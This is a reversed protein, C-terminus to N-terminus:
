QTLGYKKYIKDYTGDKKLSLFADQFKKITADPTERNFAYFDSAGSITYLKEYEKNDIGHEKLYYWVNEEGYAIIDVSGTNLKKLATELTAVRTLKKKPVNRSLLLIESADDIVTVIRYKKADDVTALKIKKRKKAILGLRPTRIPGVWKFLKEREELRSTSFIVSNPRTLVQQYGQAWPVLKIKAPELGMRAWMEKLIDVSSGKIEGNRTFNQPAAEETLYLFINKENAMCPTSSFLFIIVGIFLYLKSWFFM